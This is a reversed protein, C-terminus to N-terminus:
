NTFQGVVPVEVFCEPCRGSENGTLNYGCGTCVIGRQDFPVRYKHKAWVVKTKAFRDGWRRGKMMTLIIGWFGVIPIILIVNRKFSQGFSIPLLTEEDVVQVGMLRKGPSMGNFGDKCYFFLPIFWGMFLEFGGSLNFASVIQNDSWSNEYIKPFVLEVFLSISFVVFAFAMSDLVYAFQRRNVFSNRCKHCTQVGFLPKAKKLKKIELNCIPCVNSQFTPTTPPANPTAGATPSQQENNLNMPQNM